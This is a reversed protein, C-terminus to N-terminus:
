KETLERFGRWGPPAAYGHEAMVKLLVDSPGDVRPLGTRPDVLATRCGELRQQAERWNGVRYALFGKDFEQKFDPDLGWSSALDPNTEWESGACSYSRWLLEEVASDDGAEVQAPSPEPVADMNIDYTFLGMPQVSGKVTVCDIQRVRSRVLPSLCEVFDESLLILAGFQKTAAELRSAMNVNPSLYSADIKYESGIAGEIAWGVHLGFGMAINFGPMRANLDKRQAYKKLRASRKLAINILVFAALANDAIANIVDRKAQWSMEIDHKLSMLAKVLMMKNAALPTGDAATLGFGEDALQALSLTHALSSNAKVAALSGPRQMGAQMQSIQVQMSMPMSMPVVGGGGGTGSKVALAPHFGYALTASPGSSAVGGVRQATVIATATAAGGGAAPHVRNNNGASGFPLLRRKSSHPGAGGGATSPVPSDPPHQQHQHQNQPKLPSSGIPPTNPASAYAAGNSSAPGSGPVPLLTGELAKLQREPVQSADRKDRVVNNIDRMRFGRPFKWVLLFADGINKNPSGGHTSVATHVIHAISNVFEMVEEQLVETADTFRRIDCFGFIAVTRRGPVMPNIDGDNRINEAIVEAGADGFGIALLAGIKAISNELVETEYAGAGTGGAEDAEGEPPGDWLYTWVREAWTRLLQRVRVWRAWMRVRFSMFRTLAAQDSGRNAGRAWGGGASSAAGPGEAAGTSLSLKPAVGGGGVAGGGTGAGALGVPGGSVRAKGDGLFTVATHDDAGGGGGGAKGGDGVGAANIMAVVDGKGKEQAGAGGSGGLQAAERAVGTGGNAASAATAVAAEAALMKNAAAELAAIGAPLSDAGASSGTHATGISDRGHPRTPDPPLAQLKDQWPAQLQLRSETLALPNEAMEQLRQIMREIPLLVLNRSDRNLFYAGTVLLIIIFLSRAMNLISSLQSYWRWDYVAFTDWHLCGDAPDPQLVGAAVQDAPWNPDAPCQASSYEAFYLEEFRRPSTRLPLYTTNAILLQFLFSTKKAGAKFVVEETFTHLAARFSDTGAGEAVAMSHLMKLGSEGVTRPRGFTGLRIDFCPILLIMILVGVVIRRTTLEELKQGVKTKREQEQQMEFELISLTETSGAVNSDVGAAELAQKIRRRRVYQTYMSYLRLMRLLRFIRAVRAAKSSIYLQDGANDTFGGRDALNIYESGGFFKLRVTPVEFTLSCTAIADLWFYFGLFYGPRLLSSLAMEILFVVLVCTTTIELPLDCSPPLAAKKFDDVFIIYFTLFVLLWYFYMSNMIAMVRKRWPALHLMILSPRRSSTNNSAATRTRSSGYGAGYGFQGAGDSAHPMPDAGSTSAGHGNSISSNSARNADGNKHFSESPLLPLDAAGGSVAAPRGSLTHGGGAGGGLGAAAAAAMMAMVDGSDGHRLRPAVSQRMTLRRRAALIGTPGASPPRTFGEPMHFRVGGGTNGVNGTAGGLSAFMPPLGDVGLSGAPQQQQQQQQQQQKALNTILGPLPTLQPSSDEAQSLTREQAFSQPKDLGRPSAVVQPMALVQPKSESDDDPIHSESARVSHIVDLPGAKSRPTAQAVVESLRAAAAEM